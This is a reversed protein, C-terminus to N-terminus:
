IVFALGSLFFLCNFSYFLFFLSSIDIYVHGSKGEEHAKILMSIVLSVKVRIFFLCSPLFLFTGFYHFRFRPFFLLFFFFSFVLNVEAVTASAEKFLITCSSCWFMEPFFFFFFFRWNWMKQRMHRGLGDKQPCVDKWSIWRADESVTEPCYSHRDLKWQRAKEWRWRHFSTKAVLFQCIYCSGCFVMLMSIIKSWLSDKEDVDTLRERFIVKRLKGTRSKRAGNPLVM